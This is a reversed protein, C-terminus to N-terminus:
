MRLNLLACTQPGGVTAFWSGLRTAAHLKARVEAPASDIPFLEGGALLCGSETDIMVSGCAAALNLADFTQDTMARARAELDAGIRPTEEAVRYLAADGRRKNVQATSRAHLVVPLVALSLLLPMGRDDRASFSHVAQSLIAASLADNQVLDAPTM